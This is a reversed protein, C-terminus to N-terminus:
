STSHTKAAFEQVFNSPYTAFEPLNLNVGHLYLGAKDPGYALIHEEFSDDCLEAVATVNRRRLERALDVKTKGIAALQQELRVEGASAHSLQVDSRDGTSHKSCVVLTDDELGSVFIICGNEKLTLEYPGKTKALITPWKTENVEDVNFFKDYGRVAIEPEKRSSQTTFLGRAYTPLDPRKYDWEQMRWSDLQIGNQSGKVNFTTKKCSFGGKRKEKRALDLAKVMRSVEQVDQLKYPAEMIHKTNSRLDKIQNHKEPKHTTQASTKISGSSTCLLKQATYNAPQLGFRQM